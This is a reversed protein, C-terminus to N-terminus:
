HNLMQRQSLTHDQSRPDLGVDPEKYTFSRGRGTDRGRHREHIFLYFRLFFYVILIQITKFQKELALWFSTGSGKPRYTM